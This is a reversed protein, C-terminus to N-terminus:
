PIVWLLYQKIKEIGLIYKSFPIRELDYKAILEGLWFPLSGTFKIEMIVRDPFVRQTQRWNNEKTVQVATIDHDFTVRLEPVTGIFPERDYRILIKPEFLYREKVFIFQKILEDQSSHIKSSRLLQASQTVSLLRRNKIVTNDFKRKIEWFIGTRHGSSIYTRLRYKSRNRLGAKTQQYSSLTPSDLYLSEIIYHGAAGSFPDRSLRRSITHRLAAYQDRNLLYKFEFRRFHLKIQYPTPSFLRTSLLPM